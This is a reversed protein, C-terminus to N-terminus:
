TWLTRASRSSTPGLAAFLRQREDSTLARPSREAMGELRTADRIPNSRLVGYRVALGLVGSLVSRCSKATSRGVSRRLAVLFRDILPVTIEGLRVGRFAPLVHRSEEPDRGSGLWRPGM